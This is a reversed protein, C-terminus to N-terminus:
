LRELIREISPVKSTKGLPKRPTAQRAMSFPQYWSKDYKDRNDWCYKTGGKGPGRKGRRTLQGRFYTSIKNLQTKLSKPAVVSCNKGKKAAQLPVYVDKNLKQVVEDLYLPTHDTQHCPLNDWGVSAPKNKLAEYRRYAEKLPLGVNNDGSNINWDTIALCQRIYSKKDRPMKSDQACSVSLIHHINCEGAKIYGRKDPPNAKCATEHDTGHRHRECDWKREPKPRHKNDAM